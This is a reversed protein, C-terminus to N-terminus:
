HVTAPQGPSGHHHKTTPFPLVKQHPNRVLIGAMEVSDPVPVTIGNPLRTEQAFRRIKRQSLTSIGLVVFKLGRCIISRRRKIGAFTCLHKRIVAFVPDKTVKLRRNEPSRGRGGPLSEFPKQADAGGGKICVRRWQRCDYARM